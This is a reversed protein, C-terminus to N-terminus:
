PHFVIVLLSFTIRSSFIGSSICVSSCVVCFKTLSYHMYLNICTFFTNHQFYITCVPAGTGFNWRLFQEILKEFNKSEPYSLACFFRMLGFALCASRAFHAFVFVVVHMFSAASTSSWLYEFCYFVMRVSLIWLQIFIRSATGNLTNVDGVRQVAQKKYFLLYTFDSSDFSLKGPHSCLTMLIPAINADHHQPVTHFVPTDLVNVAGLIFGDCCPRVSFWASDVANNIPFANTWIYWLVIREVMHEGWFKWIKVKLVRQINKCRRFHTRQALKIWWHSRISFLSIRTM